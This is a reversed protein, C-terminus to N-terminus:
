RHLDHFGEQTQDLAHGVDFVRTLSEKYLHHGLHCPYRNVRRVYGSPLLHDDAIAILHDQIVEMPDDFRLRIDLTDTDDVTSRM